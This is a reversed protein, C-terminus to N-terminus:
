KRLGRIFDCISKLEEHSLDYEYIMQILIARMLDVELIPKM